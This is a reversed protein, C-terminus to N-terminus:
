ARETSGVSRPDRTSAAPTFLSHFAAISVTMLSAPGARTEGCLKPPGNAQAVHWPLAGEGYMKSSGVSYQRFSEAMGCYLQTFSIRISPEERCTGTMSDSCHFM